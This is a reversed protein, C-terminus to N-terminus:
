LFRTFFLQLGISMEDSYFNSHYFGERSMHEINSGAVIQQLEYDDVTTQKVRWLCFGYNHM